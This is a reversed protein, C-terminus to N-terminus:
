KRAPERIESLTGNRLEAIQPMRGALELSHTVLILTINEERNLETLLTALNTAAERDLSGTPEDALLIAPQNILARVVAVRQREGGSLQGPRHQLRHALGVRHLLQHARPVANARNNHLLAPILTNELVTCQPLLHHQQFVFGIKRNRLGALAHDNLTAVDQGDILVAGATPKDLTGMINLLTSKGSGSPGIIALATGPNLSLSIDRLVPIDTGTDQSYTM